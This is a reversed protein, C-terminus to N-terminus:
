ELRRLLETRRDFGFSPIKRLKQKQWDTRRFVLLRTEQYQDELITRVIDRPELDLINGYRNRIVDNM